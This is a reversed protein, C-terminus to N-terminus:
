RLPEAEAKIVVIKELYIVPRSIIMLRQQNIHSNFFDFAEASGVHLRMEEGEVVVRVVSKAQELLGYQLKEDLVAVIQEWIQASKSATM